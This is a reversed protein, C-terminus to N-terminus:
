RNRPKQKRKNIGNYYVSGFFFDVFCFYNYKNIKTKNMNRDFFWVFVISYPNIKPPIYFGVPPSGNM